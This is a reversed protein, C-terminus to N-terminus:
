RQILMRLMLLMFWMVICMRMTLMVLVIGGDGVGDVDVGEVDDDKYVDDSADADDVDVHEGDGFVGVVDVM